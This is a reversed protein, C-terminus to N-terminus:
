YLGHWCAYLHIENLLFDTYSIKQRALEKGSVDEYIMTAQIDKVIVKVQVFWDSTGIESLHSAIADM